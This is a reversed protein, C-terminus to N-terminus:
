RATKKIADAVWGRELDGDRWLDLFKAYQDRARATDNRREYIQALLFYSRAYADTDFVLDHSTQLRELLPAADADRGAKINASAADYLLAAFSSPPGFVPGHPPMMRVATRYEAIATASDGRDFAIRARTWHVRRKERESPVIAARAELNAVTQEADLKRGLAAQAVALLQLTEFEENRGTADSLALQAQALAAAPNGIRLLITAQRNRSGARTLAPGGPVHSAKEWLALAQRGRGRASAVYAANGLGLFKQFPNPSEQLERSLSELDAWRHQMVAISRLGLKPVFDLPELASSKEFMARANDLQGAAVLAAGLV